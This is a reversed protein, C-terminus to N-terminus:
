LINVVICIVGVPTEYLHMKFNQFLLFDYADATSMREYSTKAERGFSVFQASPDLLLVAPCWVKFKNTGEWGSFCRIRDPNEETTFAVACRSMDFYISIYIDKKIAPNSGQRVAM